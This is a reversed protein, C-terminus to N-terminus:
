TDYLIEDKAGESTIVISTDTVATANDVPQINKTRGGNHIISDL